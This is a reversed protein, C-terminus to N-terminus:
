PKIRLSALNDAIELNQSVTEPGKLDIGEAAPFISLHFLLNDSSSKSVRTADSGEEERGGIGGGGELDVCPLLRFALFGEM